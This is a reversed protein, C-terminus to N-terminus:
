ENGEEQKLMTINAEFTVVGWYWDDQNSKDITKKLDKLEVTQEKFEGGNAEGDIDTITLTGFYNVPELIKESIFKGEADTTLTQTTVKYDGDDHYHETLEVRLGQIPNSETDTVCGKTQYDMTPSGYMLPIDWLSKSDSCASFGLAGLLIATLWQSFKTISTKM